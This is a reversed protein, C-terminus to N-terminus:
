PNGPLPQLVPPPLGIPQPYGPPQPVGPATPPAIPVRTRVIIVPAVNPTPGYPSQSCDVYQLQGMQPRGCGLVEYAPAVGAPAVGPRTPESVGPITALTQGVSQGRYVRDIEVALFARSQPNGLVVIATGAKLPFKAPRFHTDSQVRVRNIRGADDRILVESSSTEAIVTGRLAQMQIEYLPASPAAAVATLTALALLVTLFTTRLLM